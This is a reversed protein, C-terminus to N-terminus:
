LVLNGCVSGNPAVMAASTQNQDGEKHLFGIPKGQHKGQLFGLPASGIAGLNKAIRNMLRAIEQNKTTAEGQQVVFVCFTGCSGCNRQVIEM